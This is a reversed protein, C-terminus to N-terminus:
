FWGELIPLLFLSVFDILFAFLIPIFFTFVLRSKEYRANMKELFARNEEITKGVFIQDPTLNRYVFGRNYVVYWLVLAAGIGFYLYHPYSFGFVPLLFYLPVFVATNLLLLLALKKKRSM